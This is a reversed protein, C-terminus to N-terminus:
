SEVEATKEALYDRILQNVLAKVSRGESAAQVKAQRHLERDVTVDMSTATTGV